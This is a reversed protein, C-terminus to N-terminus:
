RLNYKVGVVLSRIHEKAIMPDAIDNNDGKFLVHTDNMWIARHVVTRNETYPSVFIYIEGLIVSHDKYHFDQLMLRDDCGLTPYMSRTECGVWSWEDVVMAQVKIPDPSILQYAIVGLFLIVLLMGFIACADFFLMKTKHSIM